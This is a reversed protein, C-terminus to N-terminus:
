LARGPPHWLLGLRDLLCLRELMDQPRGLDGGLVVYM